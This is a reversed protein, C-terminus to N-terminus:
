KWRPRSVTGTKILLPRSATSCSDTRKMTKNHPNPVATATSTLVHPGSKTTGRVFRRTISPSSRPPTARVLSTTGTASTRQPMSKSRSAISASKSSSSPDHNTSAPPHVTNDNSHAVGKTATAVSKAHTSRYTIGWFSQSGINQKQTASTVFGDAARTRQPLNEVSSNSTCPIETDAICSTSKKTMRISTTNKTSTVNSLTIGFTDSRPKRSPMTKATKSSATESKSTVAIGDRRKIVAEKTTITTFSKGSQILSKSPINKSKDCAQELIGIKQSTSTFTAPLQKTFVLSNNISQKSTSKSSTSTTSLKIRYLSNQSDDACDQVPSTKRVSKLTRISRITKSLSIEAAREVAVRQKMKDMPSHTTRARNHNIFSADEATNISNNHKPIIETSPTRKYEAIKSPANEKSTSFTPTMEILEHPIEKNCQKVAEKEVREAVELFEDLNQSHRILYADSKNRSQKRLKMIPSMDDGEDPIKDRLKHVTRHVIKCDKKEDESSKMVINTQNINSRPRCHRIDSHSNSELLEELTRNNNNNNNNIKESLNFKSSNDSVINEVNSKEELRKLRRIRKENDSLADRLRCIFTSLIKFCEEIKFHKEDECFYAALYSILQDMQELQEKMNEMHERSNMFHQNTNEFFHIDIRKRVESSVNVLKDGITRVDNRISELSLRAAVPVTLLENLLKETCERDQMAIFHLLTISKQTGKVDLIRWLSNLKFGAANGFTANANLFNGIQVLMCFIKPLAKSEKIEICSNIVTDIHPLLTEFAIDLEEKLIMCDLILRYDSVTLLSLFFQEAIGLQSQDGSFGRLIEIEENDPLIARLNNLRELGFFEGRGDRVNEIIQSTGEKFQKLFISVSFSRKHSLLTIVANKRTTRREINSMDNSPRAAACSFMSELEDFNLHLENESLRASSMWVNHIKQMGDGIVKEVPIKTWQIQKMQSGAKPMAKPKLAKPIDLKKKSLLRSGKENLQLSPPPPPGNSIEALLPPPPPPPPPPAPSPAAVVIPLAVPSAQTLEDKKNEVKENMEKGTGIAMEVMMEADNPNCKLLLAEVLQELNSLNISDTKNKLLNVLQVLASDKYCSEDLSNNDWTPPSQVTEVSAMRYEEEEESEETFSNSDEVETFSLLRGRISTDAGNQHHELQWHEIQESIERDFEGFTGSNLLARFLKSNKERRLKISM